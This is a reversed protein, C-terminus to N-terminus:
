RDREPPTGQEPFKRIEERLLERYADRDLHEGLIGRKELETELQPIVEIGLVEGDLSLTVLHGRPTTIRLAPDGSSRELIEIGAAPKELLKDRIPLLIYWRCRPDLTTNGEMPMYLPESGGSAFAPGDLLFVAPYYLGRRKQENEPWHSNWCLQVIGKGKGEPLSCVKTDVPLGPNWARGLINGAPDLLLLLAPNYAGAAGLPVVIEEGPRGDVDGVLPGAPGWLPTPFFGFRPGEDLRGLRRYPVVFEESPLELRWRAGGRQEFCVLFGPQLVDHRQGPSGPYVLTEWAGDGELDCVVPDNETRTQFRERWLLGGREDLLALIKRDESLEVYPAERGCSSLGLVLALLVADPAKRRNRGRREARGLSRRAITLLDRVGLKM